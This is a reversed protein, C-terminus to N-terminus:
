IIRHKPLPSYSESKLSVYIPRKYWFRYSVNFGLLDFLYIPQFIDPRQVPKYERRDNRTLIYSIQRFIPLKTSFCLQNSFFKEIEGTMMVPMVPRAFLGTIYIFKTWIIGWAPM